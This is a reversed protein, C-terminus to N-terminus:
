YTVTYIPTINLDAVLILTGDAVITVVDGPVLNTATSVYGYAQTTSPVLGTLGTIDAGNLQLKFTGATGVSFARFRIGLLTANAQPCWLDKTNSTTVTLNITSMAPMNVVATSGFIEWSTSSIKELYCTANQILTTNGILTESGEKVMTVTGVGLNKLKIRTGIPFAVTSTQPLTYTSESANTATVTGGGDTLALSYTTGTQNNVCLSGGANGVHEASWSAITTGSTLICTVILTSNAAVLRITNSGSSQVTVLGTSNNTIYYSQGLVLTSTVPLVVTQTTSGTFFQQQTSAATLTTTGAATATTTYGNIVSLLSLSTYATDAANRLKTLTSTDSYLLTNAGFAVGNGAGGTQTQAGWAYWSGNSGSNNRITMNISTGSATFTLAYRYWSNGMSTVVLTGTGSTVSGTGASLNLDAHVNANPERFRVSTVTGAKLYVSMTVIAGSTATVSQNVDGTTVTTTLTDATLNGDPASISNATITCSTKTWAANDIQESYLILNPSVAASTTVTYTTAVDAAYVTARTFAGTSQTTTGIAGPSLLNLTTNVITM